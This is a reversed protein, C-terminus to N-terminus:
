IEQTNWRQKGDAEEHPQSNFVAENAKDLVEQATLRKTLSHTSFRIFATVSSGAPITLRKTLSHTSFPLRLRIMLLKM